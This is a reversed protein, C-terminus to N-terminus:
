VAVAAMAPARNRVAILVPPDFPRLVRLRLDVLRTTTGAPFSLPGEHGIFGPDDWDTGTGTPTSCLAILHWRGEPVASLVYPGPTDLVTYRVPKGEPLRSPFLGVFVPGPQDTPSPHVHGRLITSPAGAGSAGGSGTPVLGRFQRYAIPSVGVRDSFRTSFTGVSNYGVRYSIDAVSFKTSLLLRKAEALRMASLFRGPSVGTAQRFVRSFHFKSFMASRAMDDITLQEGLKETMTEIAREVARRVIEEM